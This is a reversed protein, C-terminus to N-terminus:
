DDIIQESSAAGHPHLELREVSHCANVLLVIDEMKGSDFETVNITLYRITNTSLWQYKPSIAEGASSLILKDLSISFQTSIDRVVEPSHDIITISNLHLTVLTTQKSAIFQLLDRLTPFTGSIDLNKLFPLCFVSSLQAQQESNFSKWNIISYSLEETHKAREVLEMFESPTPKKYDVRIAKNYGALSPDHDLLAFLTKLRKPTKYIISCFRSLNWFSRSVLACAAMTDRLWKKSEYIGKKGILQALIELLVDWPLAPSRKTTGMLIFAFYHHAFLVRYSTFICTASKELVKGQQDLFKDLQIMVLQFKTSMGSTSRAVYLYEM